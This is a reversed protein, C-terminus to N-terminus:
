HLTFGKEALKDTINRYLDRSWIESVEGVRSGIEQESTLIKQGTPSNYFVSAEKRQEYDLATKDTLLQRGTDTEYFALMNVLDDKEYTGRYASVLMNLIRDVESSSDSRLSKWMDESINQGAYQQKLLGFLQDIAGEYQKATGNTQLYKLAVEHYSVEQAYTSFSTLIFIAILLKKMM